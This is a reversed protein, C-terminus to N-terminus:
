IEKIFIKTIVEYNVFIMFIQARPFKRGYPIYIFVLTLLLRILKAFSPLLERLM